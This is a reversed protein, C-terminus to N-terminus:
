YLVVELNLVHMVTRVTVFTKTKDHYRAMKKFTWTIIFTTSDSKSQNMRRSYVSIDKSWLRTPCFLNTSCTPWIILNRQSNPMFYKILSYQLERYSLTSKSIYCFVSSSFAPTMYKCALCVAYQFIFYCECAHM